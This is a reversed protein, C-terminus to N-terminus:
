KVEEFYVGIKHGFQDYILRSDYKATPAIYFYSGKKSLVTKDTFRKDFDIECILGDKKSYNKICPSSPADVTESTNNWVAPIGELDAANTSLTGYMGALGTGIMARTFVVACMDNDGILDIYTLLTNGSVQKDKYKSWQSDSITNVTRQIGKKADNAKNQSFYVLATSIGLIVCICVMVLGIKAATNWEQM